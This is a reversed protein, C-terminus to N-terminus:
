FGIARFAISQPVDAFNSVAITGVGVPYANVREAAVGITNAMANVCAAPFSTPLSVNITQNGPVSVSGWQEMFGNPYKVYGSSGLSQVVMGQHWVYNSPSNVYPSSGILALPLGSSGLVIHNNASAYLGTVANGNTLKVRYAVNNAMDVAGTMTGGSVSLKSDPDFSGAHWVPQSKYFIGTDDFSLTTSEGILFRHRGDSNYNLAGDTTVNFGYASGVLALHRSNDFASEVPSDGFSLGGAIVDGTSKIPRVFLNGEPLWASRAEDWRKLLGSPIDAWTMKPWPSPPPTAGAFDSSLNRSDVSGASIAAESASTAASTASAQANSESTSASAASNAASAASVAANNESVAASQANQDASEAAAATLAQKENVDAQLANAELAFTPLAAMFADGREAFNQPDSRSPPAPLPTIAM